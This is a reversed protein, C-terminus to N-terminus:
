FELPFSSNSIHCTTNAEEVESMSENTPFFTTITKGNKKVEIHKGMFLNDIFVNWAHISKQGNTQTPLGKTQTPVYHTKGDIIFTLQQESSSITKKNPLNINVHWDLWIDTSRQDCCALGLFLDDTKKYLAYSICGMGVGENRWYSTDKTKNQIIKGQEQLESIYNKQKENIEKLEDIQKQANTLSSNLKIIDDEKSKYENLLKYNKAVLEQNTNTLNQLNSHVKIATIIGIIILLLFIFITSKSKIDKSNRSENRNDNMDKLQNNKMENTESM